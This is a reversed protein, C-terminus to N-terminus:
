FLILDTKFIYMFVVIDAKNKCIYFSIIKSYYSNLPAKNYLIVATHQSSIQLFILNLLRKFTLLLDMSLHLRLAILRFCHNNGHNDPQWFLHYSIM